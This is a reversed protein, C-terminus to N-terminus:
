KLKFKFQLSVRLLENKENELTYREVNWISKIKNELEDLKEDDNPINLESNNNQDSM